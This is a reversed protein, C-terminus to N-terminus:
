IEGAQYNAYNPSKSFVRGRITGSTLNLKRSADGMSVYKVGDIFIPYKAQAKRMKEISEQSFRRGTVAIRLKERTEPSPPPRKLAIQRMKERFGPPKKVGLHTESLRKIEWPTKARGINAKLLAEKQEKSLPIGKRAAFANSALNLLIGTPFLEDLLKQEELLRNMRDFRSCEKYELTFSPSM